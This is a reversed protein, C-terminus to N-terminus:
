KVFCTTLRPQLEGTKIIWITRVVAKETNRQFEMDVVYRQGYEDGEGLMCKANQINNMIAAILEDIRRDFYSGAWSM